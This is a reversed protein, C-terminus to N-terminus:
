THPNRTKRGFFLLKKFGKAAKPSNQSTNWKKRSHMAPEMEMVENPPPPTSIIEIESIIRPSEDKENMKRNMEANVTPFTVNKNPSPPVPDVTIIEPIDENCDEANVHDLQVPKDDETLHNGKSSQSIENEEPTVISTTSQLEQIDESDDVIATQQTAEPAVTVEKSDKGHADSDNSHAKDTGSKKDEILHNGKSSQSIENEEPTVISTTSQLEQIDKSDDVMATQQTAEPAVTVEKSDKGLADSDSSHAKNTGSKKDSAKVKNTSSKTKRSGTKSSGSDKLTSKKPQNPRSEASSVKPTNQATALREITSRRLVPKPVKKTEQTEPQNKMPTSSAKNEMSNRVSTVSNFGNAASREAIRKQRQIRLEEIKKRIEDEQDFRSKWVATRSGAPPKRIKSSMDSKSKVLSRNPVRSRSEKNPLKGKSSGDTKGNTDKDDAGTTTIDSHRSNAEASLVNMEYDIEPTRSAVADIDASDRGLMMYLDDPEYPVSAAKQLNGAKGNEYRTTEIEPVMGVGVRLQSDLQDEEMPPGQIMLSDDVFADNKNVETDFREAALSSSNDGDFMKIGIIEDQNVSKDLQNNMFWDGEKRSKTMTSETTFDSIGNRSSIWSDNGQLMLLEENTSERKKFVQGDYENTRYNGGRTEGENGRNMKAGLFPDGSVVPQIRVSESNPESGTNVFYEDQLRAPDSSDLDKEQLLLNQFADWPNNATAVKTEHEDDDYSVTDRHKSEEHKKHHRSTLKHQKNLSGVAEEVQQKHSDGDIFEDEDSAEESDSDKEGNRKSSIYNINRIVVKRSGKKGHKKKRVQQGPEGESSSDSPETSEDQKSTEDVKRSSSKKKSRSSSRHSRHDDLEWGRSLSSDEVYPPWNMNGPYFPAPAHMGPFHYGQYPPMQQFGPGQFNHMFHPVHSPWQMQVQAKGDPNIDASGADSADTSGNQKANSFNMMPNENPDNEEGALVIGTTGLYSLDPRPSAQMAELEAMWLRDENKRKCLDMFNICAERLRSAGFADAFSILDDINDPEYGAVLARAYAMAQEKSLVKKRTELVRQLRVKSNEEQVADGTGNFEGNSKSSSFTKQFNASIVSETGDTETVVAAHAAENSQISNEIQEIEREVTVFRELVKPTSVFRVFRQLTGKTFWSPTSGVPRLTISYGGKSLQDKVAKLHSIFPDLLGSALKENEKGAFIVLDCRTRTPTLRFLTYDLRTNFDM